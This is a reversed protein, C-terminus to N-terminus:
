RPRSQDSGINLSQLYPNFVYERSFWGRPWAFYGFARAPDLFFDGRELTQGIEQAYGWPANAKDEGWDDGDFAAPLIHGRYDFPQDFLEGPGIEGRRPWLTEYISAIAYHVDDDEVGNPREPREGPRYVIEGPELKLPEGYIGHGYTEVWVVPRGEEMRAWGSVRLAGRRVSRDFPYLYIHSHALTLLAMPRGFTSGDKAVVVQLSEMDNEHCGNSQACPEPTYDRPHFLSYFLFWHTETEIISAYVWARLDGTPQNEWNNNGVWDKDFDVAAIYDASSAAGQHIIPAYREVLAARRSPSAAPFSAPPPPPAQCAALLLSFFLLAIFFSMQARSPESM